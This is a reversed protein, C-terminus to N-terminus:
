TGGNFKGDQPNVKQLVEIQQNVGSTNAEKRLLRLM